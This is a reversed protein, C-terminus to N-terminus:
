TGLSNVQIQTPVAASKAILAIMAGPVTVPPERKAISGKAPM